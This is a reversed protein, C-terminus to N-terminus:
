AMLRELMGALRSIRMRAEQTAERKADYLNRDLHREIEETILRDLLAPELADLEWSEDGWHAVYEGARSDTMKTPNPPPEHEEVQDYNLAIREVQVNHEAFMLVRDRIDRTMDIGSPDHDALHIVVIKKGRRNAALFRRGAAWQESQSM